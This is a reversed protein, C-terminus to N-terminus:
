EGVHNDGKPISCELLKFNKLSYIFTEPVLEKQQTFQRLHLSIQGGSGLIEFNRAFLRGDANKEFDDLRIHMEDGGNFRVIKHLSHGENTTLYDIFARTKFAADDEEPTSFLLPWHMFFQTAM